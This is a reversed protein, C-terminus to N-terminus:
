LVESLKAKYLLKKIIM